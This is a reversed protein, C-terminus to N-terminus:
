YTQFGRWSGKGMWINGYKKVICNQFPIPHFQGLDEDKLFEILKIPRHLDSWLSGKGLFHQKLEKLLNRSTGIYIFGDTLELVFVYSHIDNSHHEFQKIVKSFARKADDDSKPIIKGDLIHNKTSVLGFHHDPDSFIYEGGRVNEIGYKNMYEITLETEFQIAGEQTYEGLDWYEVMRIPKYYFTWVSGEGKQESHQRFRRVLDDTQGIYYHERELLLVYLYKRKEKM